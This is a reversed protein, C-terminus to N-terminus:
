KIFREVKECPVVTLGLGSQNAKLAKRSAIVAFCLGTREDKTYTIKEAMDKADSSSIKSPQVDCSVILFGLCLIIFMKKM